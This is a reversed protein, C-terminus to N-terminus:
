FYVVLLIKLFPAVSIDTIYCFMFMALFVYWYENVLCVYQCLRYCPPSKSSFPRMCEYIRIRPGQKPFKIKPLILLHSRKPPIIDKPSPKPSEFARALNLRNSKARLQSSNQSQIHCWSIGCAAMGGIMHHGHIRGQFCKLFDWILHMRKYNAKTM